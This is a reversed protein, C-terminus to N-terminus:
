KRKVHRSLVFIFIYANDFVLCSNMFSLTHNIMKVRKYFLGSKMSNSCTPCNLQFFERVVGFVYIITQFVSRKQRRHKLYTCMVCTFSKLKCLITKIFSTQDRSQVKNNTTSIHTILSIILLIYLIRILGKINYLQM